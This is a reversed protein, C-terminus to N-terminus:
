AAASLLAQGEAAATRSVDALWRIFDAAAAHPAHAIAIYQTTADISLTAVPLLAGSRLWPRALSPRALAVGQGWAAAELTLGLDVLRPGIAPETGDLGAARLWPAWPEVPTRLLPWAQLAAADLLAGPRARGASDLVMDLGQRRMLAPAAVPILRDHMLVTGATRGPEGHCIEVDAQPPAGELFPTSLVVELEVHPQRAAHDQLAPVLIQRAFTPPACVRLRQLRRAHRRHLPMAALLGLATRVQGLYEKGAATLALGRASRVFLPTGLLEELTAVRKGVASATVALADAAREFSGLRATADFARLGDISPLRLDPEM